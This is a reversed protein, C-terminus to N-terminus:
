RPPTTTRKQAENEPPAHTRDSNGPGLSHPNRLRFRAPARPDDAAPEPEVPTAVSRVLRRALADASMAAVIVAATGPVAGVALPTMAATVCLSAVSSASGSAADELRARRFDAWSVDGSAVRRCDLLAGIALASAAGGFASRGVAGRTLSAPDAGRSGIERAGRKLKDFVSKRSHKSAAIQIRGQAAQRGAVVEDTPVRVTARRASGATKSQIKKAALAAGRGSLKQQFAGAFRGNIIRSGDYAAHQPSSFPKLRKGTLVGRANYAAQDLWEFLHGATQGYVGRGGDKAASEIIQHAVAKLDTGPRRIEGLVKAVLKASGLIRGSSAGIAAAVATGSLRAATESGHSAVEVQSRSAEAPLLPIATSSADTHDSSTAGTSM